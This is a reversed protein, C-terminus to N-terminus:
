APLARASQTDSTAQPGIRTAWRRGRTDRRGAIVVDAGPCLGELSVSPAVWVVDSGLHLRRRAHDIRDVVGVIIFSIARPM